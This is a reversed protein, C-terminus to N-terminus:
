LFFPHGHIEQGCAECKKASAEGILRHKVLNFAKLHSLLEELTKFDNCPIWKDGTQFEIIKM